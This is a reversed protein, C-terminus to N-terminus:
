KRGHLIGMTGVMFPLRLAGPIFESKGTDVYEVSAVGWGRVAAVLEDIEGYAGKLRFLDQFAFAG